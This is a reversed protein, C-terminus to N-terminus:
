QSCKGRSAGERRFIWVGGPGRDPADALTGVRSPTCQHYHRTWVCRLRLAPCEEQSQTHSRQEEVGYVHLSFSCGACYICMVAEYVCYLLDKKRLKGLTITARWVWLLLVWCLIHICKAFEPVICCMKKKAKRTHDSNKWTMITLSFCWGPCYIYVRWFNM